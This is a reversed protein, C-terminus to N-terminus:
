ASANTETIATSFSFHLTKNLKNKPFEDKEIIQKVASNFSSPFDSVIFIEFVSSESCELFFTMLVIGGESGKGIFTRSTNNTYKGDVYSTM